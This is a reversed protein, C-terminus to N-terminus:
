FGAPSEGEDLQHDHHGDQADEGGDGEGLELVVGFLGFFGGGLLTKTEKTRSDLPVGSIM